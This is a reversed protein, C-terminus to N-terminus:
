RIISKLDHVDFSEGEILTFLIKLYDGLDSKEEELEKPLDLKYVNDYTIKLRRDQTEIHLRFITM